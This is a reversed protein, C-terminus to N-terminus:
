AVVFQLKIERPAAYGVGLHESLPLPPPHESTRAEQSDATTGHHPPEQLSGIVSLLLSVRPWFALSEPCLRSLANYTVGGHLQNGFCSSSCFSPTLCLTGDTCTNLMALPVERMLALLVLLFLEGRNEM